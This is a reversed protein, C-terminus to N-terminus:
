TISLRDGNWTLLKEVTKTEVIVKEVSILDPFYDGLKVTKYLIAFRYQQSVPINRLGFEVIRENEDPKELLGPGLTNLVERACGVIQYVDDQL